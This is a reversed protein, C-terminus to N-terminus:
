GACARRRAAETCTKLCIKNWFSSSCRIVLDIQSGCNADVFSDPILCISNQLEQKSQSRATHWRGINSYLSFSDLSTDSAIVDIRQCSGPQLQSLKVGFESAVQFPPQFVCLRFPCRFRHSSFVYAFRVGFRFQGRTSQWLVKPRHPRDRVVDRFQGRASQWVVQQKPNRIPRHPRDPM